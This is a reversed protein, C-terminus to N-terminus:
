VQMVAKSSKMSFKSHTTSNLCSHKSLIEVVEMLISNTQNTQLVQFTSVKSAAACHWTCILLPFQYKNAQTLFHSWHKTCIPCNKVVNMGPVCNTVAFLSDSKNPKLHGISIWEDMLKIGVRCISDPCGM